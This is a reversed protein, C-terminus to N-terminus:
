LFHRFTRQPWSPVHTFLCSIQAELAESNRIRQNNPISNLCPLHISVLTIKGVVVVVVILVVKTSLSKSVVSGSSVVVIGMGKSDVGLPLEIVGLPSELTITAETSWVVRNAKVTVVVVVEVVM